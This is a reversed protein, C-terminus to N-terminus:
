HQFDHHDPYDSYPSLVKASVTLSTQRFELDLAVLEGAVLREAMGELAIRVGGPLMYLEAHMPIAAGQLMQRGSSTLLVSSEAGAATVRELIVQTASGNNIVVYANASGPRASDPVIWAEEM